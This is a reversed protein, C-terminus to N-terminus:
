KVLLKQTALFNGAEDELVFLYLGTKLFDTNIRLTEARSGLDPQTRYVQRGSTDLIKITIFQGLQPLKITLRDFSPNPFLEFSVKELDPSPSNTHMGLLVESTATCGLADTVTIEYWNPLLGSIEANDTTIADNWAYSFPPTGGTLEISATGDFSEPPNHTIATISPSENIYATAEAQAIAFQTSSITVGYEGPSNVNIAAVTEGTSWLYNLNSRFLGAELIVGESNVCLGAHNGRVSIKAAFPSHDGEIINLTQNPTINYIADTHGSQWKILVSDIVTAAGLGVIEYPSNQALYGIGCHTYRIQRANGAYVEIRSGIGDRNSMIGTLALKIWNNGNGTNQWLNATFPSKNLVAVDPFGDNNFDGIANSYSETTDAELGINTPVTFVGTGTNEYLVSQTSPEGPHAGCVYLDLLSNNDYDFFNSGWGVSYFATGTADAVENFTGNGNNQLLGNGQPTNSIYVDLYGNADYDGVAACMSNLVLDAGSAESVDEFTGNGANRYLTNINTKDQAVYIDAWGDNDYDLFAPSFTHKSTNQVGATFTTEEFTGDGNNRFLNNIFLSDGSLGHDTVYLDLWGDRDYDGWAAGFNGVENLPLGAATTVDTFNLNGDNNYLRNVAFYAPVYLDKDDDNDYDVWLIQKCEDTNDIGSLAIRQFNGGMNEYFHISDGQATSFTLDDWGDGNFDCFNVGGGAPGDVYTHNIGHSAAVDVFSSQAKASFFILISALFYGTKQM